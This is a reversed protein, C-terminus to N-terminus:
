EDSVFCDLFIVSFLADVKWLCTLVGEAGAIFFARAFGYVGEDRCFNGRGSECSDLVVLRTGSLKMQMVDLMTVAGDYQLLNEPLQSIKDKGSLLIISKQLKTHGAMYYGHSAVHLIDPSVAKMFNERSSAAGEYSSMKVRPVDTLLVKTTYAIQLPLETKRQNEDTSAVVPNGFFDVKWEAKQSHKSETSKVGLSSFTPLVCM